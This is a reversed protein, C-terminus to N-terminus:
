ATTIELELPQEVGRADKSYYTSSTGEVKVKLKTGTYTLTKLTGLTIAEWPNWGGATGTAVSVTATNSDKGNQLLTVGTITRGDAFVAKSQLYTM